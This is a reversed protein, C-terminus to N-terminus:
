WLLNGGVRPWPVYNYDLTFIAQRERWDSNRIERYITFESPGNMEVRLIIAM